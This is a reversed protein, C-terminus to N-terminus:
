VGRPEKGGKGEEASLRLLVHPINETDGEYAKESKV